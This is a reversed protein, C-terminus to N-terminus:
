GAARGWLRVPAEGLRNGIWLSLGGAVLGSALLVTEWVLSQAVALAPAVGFPALLGALAAERVGIGGLGVPILAAVKALPWVLFWVALPVDIGVARGLRSNLVVFFTQVSISLVLALAAARPRALLAALATRLKVAIKRMLPPLREPDLRRVAIAGGVAVAVVLMSAVGLIRAALGGLVGPASLAAAAALGILTTADLLRDALGGVAVAGADGRSRAALGARVFDGGVLSPLCINAFLGAAHARLSRVAGVHAGAAEVLARWKAASVAHGALFGAVVGAWLAVPVRRIAAALTDLPLWIFLAAIVLATLAGRVVVPAWRRTRPAGGAEEPEPEGTV